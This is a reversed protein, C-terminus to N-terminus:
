SAPAYDSQKGPLYEDLVARLKAEDLEAPDFSWRVWGKARQTTFELCRVGRLEPHDAIRFAKVAGWQFLQGLRGVRLGKPQLSYRDPARGARLTRAALNILGGILVTGVLFAVADDVKEPALRYVLYVGLIAVPIAWKLFTKLATKFQSTTRRQEWEAAEPPETWEMLASM